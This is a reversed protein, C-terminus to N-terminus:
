VESVIRREVGIGTRARQINWKSSLHIVAAADRKSNQMQWSKARDLNSM